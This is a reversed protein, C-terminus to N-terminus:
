ADSAPKIDPILRSLNAPNYRALGVLLAMLSAGRRHPALSKLGSSEAVKGPRCLRALGASVQGTVSISNGVAPKRTSIHTDEGSGAAPTNV